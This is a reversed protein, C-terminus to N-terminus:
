KICVTEETSLKCSTDCVIKQLFFFLSVIEFEQRIIKEGLM